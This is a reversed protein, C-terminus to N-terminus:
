GFRSRSRLEFVQTVLEQSSLALVRGLPLVRVILVRVISVSSHQLIFTCYYYYLSTVPYKDLM